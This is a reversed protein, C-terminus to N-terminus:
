DFFDILDDSTVNSIFIYEKNVISDIHKYYEKKTIPRDNKFYKVCNVDNIDTYEIKILDFKVLYYKTDITSKNRFCKYIEQYKALNDPAYANRILGQKNRTFAGYRYYNSIEILRIQNKKSGSKTIQFVTTISPSVIYKVVAGDNYINMHVTDTKGNKNRDEFISNIRFLPQHTITQIKLQKFLVIATVIATIVSAVSIVINAIAGWDSLEWDCMSM